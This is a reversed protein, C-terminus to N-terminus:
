ALTIQNPLRDRQNGHMCVHPHWGQGLRPPGQRRPSWWPSWWGRYALQNAQPLMKEQCNTCQTCCRIFAHVLHRVSEALMATAPKSGFQYTGIPKLHCAEQLARLAFHHLTNSLCVCRTLVRSLERLCRCRNAAALEMRKLREFDYVFHKMRECFFM